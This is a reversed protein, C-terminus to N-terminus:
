EKYKSTNFDCLAKLDEIKPLSYSDGSLLNDYQNYVAERELTNFYIKSRFYEGVGSDNKIM